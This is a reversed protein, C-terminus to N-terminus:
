NKCNVVLGLSTTAEYCVRVEHLGIRLSDEYIEARMRSMVIDYARQATLEM